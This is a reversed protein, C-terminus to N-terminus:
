QARIQGQEQSSGPARLQPLSLERLSKPRCGKVLLFIRGQLNSYSTVATFHLNGEEGTGVNQIAVYTDAHM